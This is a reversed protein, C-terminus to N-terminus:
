VGRKCEERVSREYGGGMGEREYVGRTGEREYVGRM